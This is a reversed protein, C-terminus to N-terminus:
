KPERKCIAKRIILAVSGGGEDDSAGNINASLANIGM